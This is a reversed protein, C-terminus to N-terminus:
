VIQLKKKNFRLIQTILLGFLIFEALSFSIMAGVAEFYNSLIFCIIINLLGTLVVANSFQKKMDFNTMYIIGVIFNLVGWFIVASGIQLLINALDSPKELIIGMIWDATVILSLVVISTLFIMVVSLKKVAIIARKKSQVSIRSIYPYLTQTIPAFIGQIVKVVKDAAAYIGVIEKSTFFALILINSNRYFNTAFYSTFIPWGEILYQRIKQFEPIKLKIRFKKLMFALSVIGGLFLAASNFFPVLIYQTERRVFVFILVLYCLRATFNIYNLYKVKEMGVYFWPAMLMTAPVIGYAAIFVIWEYDVEKFVVRLFFLILLGVITLILQIFFINSVVESKKQDDIQVKAVYQVGIISWGYDVGVRIYLAVSQALSIIGFKELGVVRIIYPITLLPVLYNSAQYLGYNFFNVILYRHEKYFLKKLENM